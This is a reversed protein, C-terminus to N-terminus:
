PETQTSPMFCVSGILFSVGEALHILGMSSIRTALELLADGVFLSSGFIFLWSALVMRRDM